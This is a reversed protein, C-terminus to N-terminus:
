GTDIEESRDVAPLYGVGFVANPSLVQGDSFIRQVIRSSCSNPTRFVNRIMCRLDRVSASLSVTEQWALFPHRQLPANNDSCPRRPAQMFPKGSKWTWVSRISSLPLWTM